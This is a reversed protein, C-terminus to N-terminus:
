DPDTWDNDTVTLTAPRGARYMMAATSSTFVIRKVDAARSAELVRLAGQRAEPM